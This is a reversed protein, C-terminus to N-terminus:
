DLQAGTLQTGSDPNIIQQNAQTIIVPASTQLYVKSKLKNKIGLVRKSERMVSLQSTGTSVDVSDTGVTGVIGGRFEVVCSYSVNALHVFSQQEERMINQLDNFIYTKNIQQGPKLSFDFTDVKRFWFKMSDAIHPSSPSLAFDTQATVATPYLNSGPMNYVATYNLGSTSTDFEWGNGLIAELNPTQLPLRSASYFMMLNIPTIPVNQTGYSNSNDRRHAFLHIRGIMSNSSSNVFQLKESLYDVYYKAGDIANSIAITADTATTDTYFQQKYTTLDANLDNNNMVNFEFSFWSKRGSIGEANFQYNRKFLLPPREVRSVREDFSLPRRKGIITSRVTTINDSQTLLSASRYVPNSVKSSPKKASKPKARTSRYDSIKKHVSIATDVGTQVASAIGAVTLAAGAAGLRRRGGKRGKKGKKYFKPM